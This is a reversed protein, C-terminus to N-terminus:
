NDSSLGPLSKRSSMKPRKDNDMSPCLQQMQAVQKSAWRSAHLAQHCWTSASGGCASPSCSAAAIPPRPMLGAPALGSARHPTGSGCPTGTQRSRACHRMENALRGCICHHAATCNVSCKLPCRHLVNTQRLAKIEGHGAFCM